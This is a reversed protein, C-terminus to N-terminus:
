PVLSPDAGAPLDTRWSRARGVAYGRQFAAGDTPDLAALVPDLRPGLYGLSMGHGLGAGELLAARAEPRAALMAEGGKLLDGAATAEGPPGVRAILAGVGPCLACAAADVPWALAADLEEPREPVPRGLLELLSGGGLLFETAMVYREEASAAELAGTVIRWARAPDPDLDVVFRLERGVGGLRLLADEPPAGPLNRVRELLAPLDVADPRARLVAAQEMGIWRRHNVRAVWDGPDIRRWLGPPRDHAMDRVIMGYSLPLLDQAAPGPGPDALPALWAARNALGPLVAVVLLACGVRRPWGRTALLRAFGAAACALLLFTAPVLYRLDVCRPPLDIAVAEVRHASLAYVALAALHLAPLVIAGAQGERARRLALAANAAAAAWLAALVAGGLGAPWLQDPTFLLLGHFRGLSAEWLARLLAVGSPLSGTSVRLLMFPDADVELLYAVLPLVGAAIGLLALPLRVVLRPLPVTLAVVVLLAPFAFLSGFCIWFGLGACFGWALWLPIGLGRLPRPRAVLATVCLAQLLVTVVLEFHNGWAMLMAQFLVSPAGLVLLAFLWGAPRGVNVRLLAVGALLTAAAWAAAVAKWSLFSVGGAAFSALGLLAVASCGGCHPNHQYQLFLAGDGVLLERAVTANVLEEGNQFHEPTAAVTALALAALGLGLGLALAWPAVARHLPARIM